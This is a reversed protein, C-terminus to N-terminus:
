FCIKYINIKLLCVKIMERDMRVVREMNVGGGIRFLRNDFRNIFFIFDNVFKRLFCRWM